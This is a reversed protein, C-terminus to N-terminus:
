DDASPQGPQTTPAAPQTMQEKLKKFYDEVESDAINEFVEAGALQRDYIEDLKNLMNRQVPVYGDPKPGIYILDTEKGVGPAVEARKKAVYILRLAKELPWSNVYRAFMFQSEAHRQGAGIAAFGISDYCVAYGPDRILYIHAGQTDVGTVIAATGTEALGNYTQLRQTLERIFDSPIGPARFYTELELGLPHLITAAARRRRELAFNRAYLEAIAKVEVIPNQLLSQYTELVIAIQATTDGAILAVVSNNPFVAVKTQPPEFEIDGATIMRDSAGVIMPRGEWTCMAAICVTM